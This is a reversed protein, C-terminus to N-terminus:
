NLLPLSSSSCCGNDVSMIAEKPGYSAYAADKLCVTFIFQSGRGPESKVAITGNMQSVLGKTIALGLGSGGYRKAISSDAQNFCEFIIAIKDAPIGIGTDTVEFQLCISDRSRKLVRGSLTVQGSATFKIANSLLNSFIQSLRLHDGIVNTVFNSELRLDFLIPKEKIITRGLEAQHHILDILNFESSVLKLQGAEIKAFDLVDNILGLLITSSYKVYSLNEKQRETLETMLVLDTMGMIANLPTRLDHSMHSLFQNKAQNAKEAQQKAELLEKEMVIRDTIDLGCSITGIIKGDKRVFNNQWSFHRMEGSKTIITRELQLPGMKEAIIHHFEEAVNTKENIPVATDFFSRGLVEEQKFGLIKEAAHNFVTIRGSTDLGLVVVNATQILNEAYEKASRLESEMKKRETINQNVCLVGIIEKSDSHLPIASNLLIKLSGDSSRIQIEEDLWAKDQQLARLVGWEEPAIQRTGDHLGNPSRESEKVSAQWCEDWIAHGAPNGHIITGDRDTIWVGVPLTELVKKLLKESDKTTKRAKVQETMEVLSMVLGIVKQQEDRVAVINFDWYTMGLEPRNKFTFPAESAFFTEGTTLVQHFITRALETDYIDFLNKGVYYEPDRGCNTAFTRNVWIFDLKADFYAVMVFTHELISSLLQTTEALRMKKIHLSHEYRKRETVDLYTVFLRKQPLVCTSVKYYRKTRPVYVEDTLAPDKLFRQPQDRIVDFDGVSPIQSVRKGILDQRTGGTIQEFTHNFEMILYDSSGDLGNDIVKYLVFGGAIENFATLLLKEVEYYEKSVREKEQRSHKLQQLAKKWQNSLWGIVLIFFVVMAVRGIASGFFIPSKLLASLLMTELLFSGVLAGALGPGLGMFVTIVIMAPMLPVYAARMGWVSAFHIRIWVLLSATVM